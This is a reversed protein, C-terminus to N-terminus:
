GNAHPHLTIKVQLGPSTKLSPLDTQFTVQKPSGTTGGVHIQAGTCSPFGTHRPIGVEILSFMYNM